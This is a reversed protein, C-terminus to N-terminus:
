YQRQVALCCLLLLQSLLMLYHFKEIERKRELDPGLCSCHAMEKAWLRKWVLTWDLLLEMLDDLLILVVMM